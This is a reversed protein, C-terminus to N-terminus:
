SVEQSGPAEVAEGIVYLKLKNKVAMTAQVEFVMHDEDTYEKNLILCSKYVVSQAAQDTVPISVSFRQM